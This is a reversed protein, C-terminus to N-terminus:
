RIFPWLWTRKQYTAYPEGLEALLNAEEKRIQAIALPVIACCLLFGIWCRFALFWGMLLMLQGLYSPHRIYRYFGTTVLYHEEQDTWPARFRNKLVFMPGFRLITGIAYFAL